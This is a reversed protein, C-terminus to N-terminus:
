DCLPFSGLFNQLDWCIYKLIAFASNNKFIQDFKSNHYSWLPTYKDPFFNLQGKQRCGQYAEISRKKGRSKTKQKRGPM